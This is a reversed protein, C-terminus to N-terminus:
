SGKAELPGAQAMSCLWARSPSIKPDLRSRAIACVAPEDIKGFPTAQICRAAPLCNNESTLAIRRATMGALEALIPRLLEARQRAEDHNRISGVVTFGGLRAGQAKWGTRPLAIDIVEKSRGARYRGAREPL